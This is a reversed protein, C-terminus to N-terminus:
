GRTKSVRMSGNCWSRTKYSCGDLSSSSVSSQFDVINGIVGYISITSTTPSSGVHESSVLNVTQRALWNSLVEAKLCPHPEFEYFNTNCVLAKVM